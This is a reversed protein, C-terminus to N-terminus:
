RKEDVSCDKVIDLQREKPSVFYITHHFGLAPRPTVPSEPALSLATIAVRAVVGAFTM